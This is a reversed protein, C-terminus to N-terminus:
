NQKDQVWFKEYECDSCIIGYIHCLAYFPIKQALQNSVIRTTETGCKACTLIIRKPM